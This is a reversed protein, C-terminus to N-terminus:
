CPCRTGELRSGRRICVPRAAWMWSGRRRSPFSAAWSEKTREFELRFQGSALRSEEAFREHYAVVEPLPDM